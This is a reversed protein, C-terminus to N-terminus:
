TIYESEDSTGGPFLCKYLMCLPGHCMGSTSVKTPREEPEEEEEEEGGEVSRAPRKKKRSGSAGSTLTKPPRNTGQTPKGKTTSLQKKLQANETRLRGLEEFVDQNSDTGECHEEEEDVRSESRLKKVKVKGSGGSRTAVGAATPEDPTQTPRERPSHLHHTHKQLAAIALQKVDQSEAGSQDAMVTLNTSTVLVLEGTKADMVGFRIRKRPKHTEIVSLLGELKGNTVMYGVELKKDDHIIKNVFCVDDTKYAVCVDDPWKYRSSPPFFFPVIARSTVVEAPSTHDTTTSTSIPTV